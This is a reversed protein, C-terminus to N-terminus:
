YLGDSAVAELIAQVNGERAQQMSAGIDLLFGGGPAATRILNRCCAQVDRATGAHMVSLPINGQIAAVEGVTAKARAM